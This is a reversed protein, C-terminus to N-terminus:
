MHLQYLPSNGKKEMSDFLEKSIMAHYILRGQMRKNSRISEDMVLFLYERATNSMFASAFLAVSLFLEEMFAVFRLRTEDNEVYKTISPFFERVFEVKCSLLSSADFNDVFHAISRKVAENRHENGECSVGRLVTMGDKDILKNQYFNRLHDETKEGWPRVLCCLDQKYCEECVPQECQVCYKLCRECFFKQCSVCFCDCSDKCSDCKRFEVFEIENKSSNNM